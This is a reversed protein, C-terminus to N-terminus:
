RRRRHYRRGGGTQANCENCLARLPVGRKFERWYKAYRASPSMRDILWARGEVHDVTLESACTCKKACLKCVLGPSLTLILAERRRRAYLSHEATRQQPTMLARRKRTRATSPNLAIM